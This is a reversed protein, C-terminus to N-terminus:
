HLKASEYIIACGRPVILKGETKNEGDCILINMELGKATRIIKPNMMIVLVDAKGWSEESSFKFSRYAVYGLYM